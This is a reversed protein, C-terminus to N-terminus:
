DFFSLQIGNGTSRVSAADNEVEKRTEIAELAKRMRRCVIRGNWVPNMFTAPFYWTKEDGNGLIVDYLGPDRLTDGIKVYGACGILSMQVYCMMAVTYDLDQAVFYAKDQWSIGAEHMAGAAAILTAGGGCAPDNLVVYGHKEIEEKAQEKVTMRAMMRCINFPTFFQGVHDNGLELEMYMSGLFDQFPNEDLREVMEALLRAFTEREEASYKRSITAYLESRKAEHTWDVTNAIEVAFMTVMDNWREWPTNWQCLESFLKVFRKQEQARVTQKM